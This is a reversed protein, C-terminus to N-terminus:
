SSTLRAACIVRNRGERKAQYMANDARKIWDDLSEGSSYESVGISVSVSLPCDVLLTSAAILECFHEAVTIASKEQMDPLLLLFEEGGMRFLLDLKRSHTNILTVLAKLVTDGAEHGFQDNVDKFHDIDVLILSMPAATRRNREIADQLCSEMHRRNFAGTLPDTIAQAVLQHQLESIVQLVLNLILITLGSSVLFRVGAGPSIYLYVLVSAILALVVGCLNALQRSLVFYCFLLLPYFWLVGYIGINPTVLSLMVAFGAPALLLPFPVPPKRKSYLAAADIALTLVVLFLACGLLPRQQIFNNVVFPLLLLAGVFAAPFMIRERFVSLSDHGLPRGPM